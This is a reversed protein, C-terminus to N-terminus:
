RTSADGLPEPENYEDTLSTLSSPRDNKSNSANGFM